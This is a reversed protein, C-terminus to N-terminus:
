IVTCGEAYITCIKLIHVDQPLEFKYELLTWLYSLFLQNVNRYPSAICLYIANNGLFSSLYATLISRALIPCVWGSVSSCLSLFSQFQSLSFSCSSGPVGTSGTASAWWGWTSRFICWFFLFFGFLLCSYAEKTLAWIVACLCVKLKREKEQVVSRVINLSIYTFSLVLLLPLQNQIALVFVDYIFAPYPFRSLVVRIHTLPSSDAKYARMIAQDVAHQVALFGERYYGKWLLLSICSSTLGLM